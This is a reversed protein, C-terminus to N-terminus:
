QKLAYLVGGQTGHPMGGLTGVYVTSGVAVPPAQIVGGTPFSWRLQGTAADLARLVQDQSGAYVTGDAVVAPSTVPAQTTYVWRAEGTAADLAYLSRDDSGVYV